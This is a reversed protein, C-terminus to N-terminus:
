LKKYADLFGKISFPLEVTQQNTSAFSLSAHEKKRLLEIAEASVLENIFCGDRACFTIPFTFKKHDKITLVAGAPLYIGLPLIVTMLTGDDNKAFNAQAIEAGSEQAVIKMSMVCTEALEGTKECRVQWDGFRMTKTLTEVVDTQGYAAVSCIGAALLAIIIKRM